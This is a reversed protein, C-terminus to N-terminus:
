ELDDPDILGETGAAGPAHGGDGTMFAMNPAAPDNGTEGAAAAFMRALRARAEPLKQVIMGFHEPSLTQQFIQLLQQPHGCMTIANCIHEAGEEANGEALMEEGLQVEQLFFAQLETPNNLNPMPRGGYGSQARRSDRAAERRNQRIRQKYDPASRRKHDFYICYGVFAAAALGAATIVHQRTISSLFSPPQESM